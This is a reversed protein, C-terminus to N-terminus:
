SCLVPVNRASLPMRPALQVLSHVCYSGDVDSTRVKWVMMKDRAALGGCLYIIDCVSPDEVVFVEITQGLQAPDAACAAWMQFPQVSVDFVGSEPADHSTVVFKRNALSLVQVVVVNGDYSAGPMSVHSHVSLCGALWQRMLQVEMALVAPKPRARVGGGSPGSGSAGRAADDGYDNEVSDRPVADVGDCVGDQPQGDLDDQVGHASGSADVALGVCGRCLEMGHVHEHFARNTMRKPVFNAAKAPAVQLVSKFSTWALDLDLPLASVMDRFDTLNSTLRMTSAMWAWGCARAHKAIHSAEAHARQLPTM